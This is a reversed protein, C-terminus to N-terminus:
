TAARVAIVAILEAAVVLALLTAKWPHRHLWGTM